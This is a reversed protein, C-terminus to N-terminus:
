PRRSLTRVIMTRDSPRWIRTEIGPVERLLALWAEQAPTVKGREAKLEAAIMRGSRVLILDPFGAVSRESNHTHYHTWGFQHALEIVSAQFHEESMAPVRYAQISTNDAHRLVVGRSLAPRSM